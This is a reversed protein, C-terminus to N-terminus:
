YSIIDAYEGRTYRLRIEDSTEARLGMGEVAVRINETVDRLRPAEGKRGRWDNKAWWRAFARLDEPEYGDGKRWLPSATKRIRGQNAEFDLACIDGLTRCFLGWSESHSLKKEQTLTVPRPAASGDPLRSGASRAPGRDNPPM